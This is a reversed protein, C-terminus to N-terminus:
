MMGSSAMSSRYAYLRCQEARCLAKHYAVSMLSVCLSPDRNALEGLKPRKISHHDPTICAAGGSACLLCASRHWVYSTHVWTNKCTWALSLM